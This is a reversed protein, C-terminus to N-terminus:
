CIKFSEYRELIKEIERKMNELADRKLFTEINKPQWKGFQAFFDEATQIRSACGEDIMFQYAEDYGSHGLMMTPLGFVVAEYLATSYVGVIACAEEFCQYLTKDLFQIVHFRESSSLVGSYEEPIYPESPHLKLYVQYDLNKKQIYEVLDRSFELMEAHVTGQSVLLIVNPNEKRNKEFQNLYEELHPYGVGHVQEKPIPFRALGEMYEGYVFVHNPFTPIEREKGTNFAIHTKPFLGHALEVVPINLAKAAETMVFRRPCYHADEVVMKVKKKKLIRKYYKMGVKHTIYRFRLTRQLYAVDISESYTEQIIKELFAIEKQIEKQVKTFLWKKRFLIGAIEKPYVDLFVDDREKRVEQSVVPEYEEYLTCRYSHKTLYKALDDSIISKYTGDEMKLYRRGIFFLIDCPKSDLKKQFIYKWRRRVEEKSRFNPPPPMTKNKNTIVDIRMTHWYNWGGITREFLQHKEEMLIFSEIPHM